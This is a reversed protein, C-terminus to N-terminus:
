RFIGAHDDQLISNVNPCLFATVFACTTFHRLAVFDSFVCIRSATQWTVPTADPDHGCPAGFLESPVRGLRGVVLSAAM